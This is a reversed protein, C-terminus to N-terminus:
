TRGGLGAHQIGQRRSLVGQNFVAIQRGGYFLRQDFQCLDIPM